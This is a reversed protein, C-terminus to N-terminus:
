SFQLLRASAESNQEVHTMLKVQIEYQRSLALIDTLESVANVNSGELFGSQLRIAGDVQVAPADEKVYVLGDARKELNEPAPNVLKIRDIQALGVGGEALVSVTGDAGIEVTTSPPVVLPGGEGLVPLGSGTRVQGNVDVHMNGARTYAEEGTASQVAIWGEGKLAIDLKNGTQILPGQQFDTGPRETMAYTRTDYHPHDAFVQMSRAQAFDQKFGTTNINALNNAHAQQALMIQKAGTMAVYLAKDM